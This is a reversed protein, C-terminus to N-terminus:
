PNKTTTTAPLGYVYHGLLGQQQAARQRAFYADIADAAATSNAM